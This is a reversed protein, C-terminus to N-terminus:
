IILCCMGDWDRWDSETEGWVGRFFEDLGPVSARSCAARLAMATTTSKAYIVILQGLGAYGTMTPRGKGRGGLNRECNSCGIRITITESIRGM